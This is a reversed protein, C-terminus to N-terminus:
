VRDGEMLAIVVSIDDHSGQNVATELLRKASTKMDENLIEEIEQDTVTANLGDTCLLICDGPSIGISFTDVELADKTGIVRTIVNKYPHLKAEKSSIYGSDILMQVYSHDKTIQTLAGNKLLYARSDGVQGIVARNGDFMVATATSGMGNRDKHMDADELVNKNATLLARRIDEDTMTEPKIGGLEKIVTDVVIRSAVEGASHGGMGDAVVAFFGGRGSPAFLCDENEKRKTGKQTKAYFIM